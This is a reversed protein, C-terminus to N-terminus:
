HQTSETLSRSALCLQKEKVTSTDVNFSSFLEGCWAGKCGVVASRSPTSSDAPSYRASVRELTVMAQDAPFYRRIVFRLSKLLQAVRM